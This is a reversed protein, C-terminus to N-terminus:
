SNAANWNEVKTKIESVTDDSTLLVASYGLTAEWVARTFANAADVDSKKSNKASQWATVALKLIYIDGPKGNVTTFGSMKAAIADPKKAKKASLWASVIKKVKPSMKNKFKPYNVESSEILLAAVVAQAAILDSDGKAKSLNWTVASLKLEDTSEVASALSNFSTLILIASVLLGAVKVNRM